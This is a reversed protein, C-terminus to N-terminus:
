SACEECWEEPTSAFYKALTLTRHAVIEGHTECVTLWPDPDDESTMEAQPGYYVGVLTGTSRAHRRQVCGLLGDATYVTSPRRPM